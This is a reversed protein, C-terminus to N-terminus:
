KVIGIRGDLLVPVAIVGDGLGAFGLFVNLLICVSRRKNQKHRPPRRVGWILRSRFFISPHEGCVFDDKM